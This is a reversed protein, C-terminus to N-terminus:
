KDAKDSTPQTATQTTPPILPRIVLKKQSDFEAIRKGDPSIMSDGVPNYPPRSQATQWPRIQLLVHDTMTGCVAFRRRDIRWTIDLNPDSQFTENFKRSLNLIELNAPNLLIAQYRSNKNYPVGAWSVCLAESNDPNWVARILGHNKQGFSIVTKASSDLLRLQGKIEFIAYHGNPSWSELPWWDQILGGPEEFDKDAHIALRKNRPQHINQHWLTREYIWGGPINWGFRTTDITGYAIEENNLWCLSTIVVEGSTIRRSKRSAQDIITITSRTVAALHRSDPSFVLDVLGFDPGTFFEGTRAFVKISEQHNPSEVSCWRVYQTEASAMTCSMFDGWLLDSWGYAVTQGDPSFVPPHRVHSMDKIGCGGLTAALCLLLVLFVGTKKRQLM